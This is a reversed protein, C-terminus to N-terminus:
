DWIMFYFFWLDCFFTAQVGDSRSIDYGGYVTESRRFGGMPDKYEFTRKITELQQRYKIGKCLTTENLKNKCKIELYKLNRNACDLMWHKLFLGLDNETIETSRVKVIPSEITLLSNLDLNLFGVLVEYFNKFLVQHSSHYPPTPGFMRLNKANNMADQLVKNQSQVNRCTLVRIPFDALSDDGEEYVVDIHPNNLVDVFHLLYDRAKIKVSVPVFNKESYEVEASVHCYMLCVGPQKRLVIRLDVDSVNLSKLHRKVSKSCFSRFIIETMHMHQLLDSLPESPYRRRPSLSGM